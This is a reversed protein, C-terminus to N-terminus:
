LKIELKSFASNNKIPLLDFNMINKLKDLLKKNHQGQQFLFIILISFIITIIMMWIKNADIKDLIQRSFPTITM